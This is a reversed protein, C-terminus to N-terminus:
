YHALAIGQDVVHERGEIGPGVFAALPETTSIGSVV